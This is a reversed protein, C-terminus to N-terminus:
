VVRCRRRMEVLSASKILNAVHNGLDFAEESFIYRRADVVDEM